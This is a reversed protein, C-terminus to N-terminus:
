SVVLYTSLSWVYGLGNVFGLFLTPEACDQVNQEDITRLKSETGRIGNTMTLHEINLLILFRNEFSSKLFARVSRLSFFPLM